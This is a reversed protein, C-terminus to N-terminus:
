TTVDSTLIAKNKKSGSTEEKESAATGGDAQRM